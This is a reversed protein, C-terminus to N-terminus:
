FDIKWNTWIDLTPYPITIKLTQDVFLPMEPLYVPRKGPMFLAHDYCKVGDVKAGEMKQTALAVAPYDIAGHSVNKPHIFSKQLLFARLRDPRSFLLNSPFIELERLYLMM